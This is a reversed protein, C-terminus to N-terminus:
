LNLHLITFKLVRKDVNLQHEAGVWGLNPLREGDDVRQSRQWGM